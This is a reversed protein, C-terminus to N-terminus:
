VPLMARCTLERPSAVDGQELGAGNIWHGDVTQQTGIRRDRVFEVSHRQLGRIYKVKIGLIQACPYCVTKEDSALIALGTIEYPM